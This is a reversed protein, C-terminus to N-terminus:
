SLNLTAIATKDELYEFTFGIKKLLDVANKNEQFEVDIGIFEGELKNEMRKKYKEGLERIPTDKSKLKREVIEDLPCKVYVELFGEAKKRLRDRWKKKYATADLIM